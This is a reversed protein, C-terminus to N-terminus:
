KDFQKQTRRKEGWYLGLLILGAGVGALSLGILVQVDVCLVDAASLNLKVNM